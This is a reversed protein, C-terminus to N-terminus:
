TKLIQAGTKQDKETIHTPNMFQVGVLAAMAALSGGFMTAYPHMLCFPMGAGVYAAALAGCISIGTTNYVRVLYKQLGVGAVNRIQTDDSDIKFQNFTTSMPKFPSRRNKFISSKIFSNPGRNFSIM